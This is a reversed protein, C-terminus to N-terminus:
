FNFGDVHNRQWLALLFRDPPAFGYMNALLRKTRAFHRGKHHRTSLRGPQADVHGLSCQFNRRDLSLGNKPVM